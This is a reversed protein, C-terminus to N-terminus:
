NLTRNEKEKEVDKRMLKGATIDVSNSM